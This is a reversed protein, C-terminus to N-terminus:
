SGAHSYPLHLLHSCLLASILFFSVLASPYPSSLFFLCFSIQLALPGLVESLRRWGTPGLTGLSIERGVAEEAIEVSQVWLRGRGEGQVTHFLM